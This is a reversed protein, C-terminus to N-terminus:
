WVCKICERAEWITYSLDRNARTIECLKNLTGVDVDFEPKSTLHVYWKRKLRYDALIGTKAFVLYSAAYAKAAHIYRKRRFEVGFLTLINVATMDAEFEIRMTHMASEWLDAKHYWEAGDAYYMIYDTTAHNFDADGRYDQLAHALEHAATALYEEPSVADVRRKGRRKGKPRRTTPHLTLVRESPDYTGFENGPTRCVRFRVGISKCTAKVM